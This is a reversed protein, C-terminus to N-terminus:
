NLPSYVIMSVITVRLNKANATSAVRNTAGHLPMQVPHLAEDSARMAHQAPLDASSAM